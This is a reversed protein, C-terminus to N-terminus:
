TWDRLKGDVYVDIRGLGRLRWVDSDGLHRYCGGGVWDVIGELGGECVVVEVVGVRAFDVGRQVRM